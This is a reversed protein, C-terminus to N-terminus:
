LAWVWLWTLGLAFLSLVGLIFVGAGYDGLDLNPTRRSLYPNRALVGLQMGMWGLVLATISSILWIKM